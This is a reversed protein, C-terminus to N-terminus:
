SEEGIIRVKYNSSDIFYKFESSSEIKSFIVDINPHESAWLDLADDRQKPDLPKSLIIHIFEMFDYGNNSNGFQLTLFYESTDDKYSQFMVGIDTIDPLESISTEIVFEKFIDWYELASTPLAKEIVKTLQDSLKENYTRYDM